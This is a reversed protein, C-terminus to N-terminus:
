PSPPSGSTLSAGWGRLHREVMGALGDLWLPDDNLCPIYHFQGGGTSLYADRYDIQIEELTELCDVVFSPSMVHVSAVGQRAWDQLLPKTYPQLWPERGFRSQFAAHVRTGHEGLRLRLGQATEMCDRHYPDGAQAASKPLGHFSLLLRDPVGHTQWFTQIRQALADLYGPETHFRKIFRLEPQNRLRAVHAAVADVATATTSAAYQPYMPVVLIRECGQSLLTDIACPIGPEGYRM